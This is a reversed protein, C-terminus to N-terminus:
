VARLSRVLEDGSSPYKPPKKPSTLVPFALCVFPRLKRVGYNVRYRDPTRTGVPRGRHREPDSLMFSVSAPALISSTTKAGRLIRPVTIAFTYGIHGTRHPNSM